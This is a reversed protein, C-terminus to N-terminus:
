QKMQAVDKGNTVYLESYLDPEEVMSESVKESKRQWKKVKEWRFEIGVSVQGNEASFLSCKKQLM